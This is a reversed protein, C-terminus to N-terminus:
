VIICVLLPTHCRKDYANIDAGNDMLFEVISDAGVICAIHLATQEDYVNAIGTVDIGKKYLQKLHCLNEEVIAARILAPYLQSEIIKIGECGRDLIFSM